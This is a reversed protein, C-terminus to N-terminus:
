LSFCIFLRESSFPFWSDCHRSAAPVAAWYHLYVSCWGTTGARHEGSLLALFSGASSPDSQSLWYFGDSLLYSQEPEWSDPFQPMNEKKHSCVCESIAFFYGMQLKSSVTIFSRQCFLSQCKPVFFKFSFLLSFLNVFWCHLILCDLIEPHDSSHIWLGAVFSIAAFSRQLISIDVWISKFGLWLVAWFEQDWM